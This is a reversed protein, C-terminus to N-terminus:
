SPPSFDGPRYHGPKLRTTIALRNWANIATIAFVLQSLEETEFEAAAREWIEDPVHGDSIATIAECLALAAREREDYPGEYWANLSYLREESEGAARADRWHMDICFGCGNIQSVRLNILERLQSDFEISADLRAMAAYQRPALESLSMRGAPITASM